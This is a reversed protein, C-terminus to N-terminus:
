GMRRDIEAKLWALDGTSGPDPHAILECPPSEYIIEVDEGAPIPVLWDEAGLEFLSRGMRVDAFADFRFGPPPEPASM